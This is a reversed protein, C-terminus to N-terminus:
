LDLNIINEKLKDILNMIYKLMLYDNEFKNDMIDLVCDIDYSLAGLSETFNMFKNNEHYDLIIIEIDEIRDTVYQCYKFVDIHKIKNEFENILENIRVM